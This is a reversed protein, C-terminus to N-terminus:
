TYCCLDATLEGGRAGASASHTKGECLTLELVIEENDDIPRDGRRMQHLVEAARRGAAVEDLVVSTLRKTLAGERRKGGFGIISVDEPSRLALRPLLLYVTEALLDSDAFIANPPEKSAYMRQLAAWIFAEGTSAADGLCRFENPVECGAAHFGEVCSTMTTTPHLGVYAVRRRGVAALTEGALRGLERYPIALLPASIGEVRSHFFLLPIGRNRLQRVQYAPTATQSAPAMAVGGVDKDLLQLVIDAQRDVDDGTNCIITQHHVEGAAAEFGHLLSPYIGELAEPVVLAFIDQGRQLKRRVENEVFTGKGQVRRIIGEHELSAMAQRVTTRAIGLQRVLTHESPLKQGPQLQGM